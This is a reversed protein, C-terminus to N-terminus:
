SLDAGLHRMIKEFGPCSDAICNINHVTTDGAAVLGAVILAMALRHDGHSDVSAGRLPTPGCVVFGDSRPSIDAGLRRLEQVTTSIRDTEKVRLEAAGRVITEGVAQTAAVALIPFEDITRVVLDGCVETGVLGSSRVTVDAVPEGSVTREDSLGLDAGMAQLVDLLGTRTPNVGVGEITVDSNPILTAAGLLYAASSLDGPVLVDVARLTNGPALQLDGNSATRLDAGLALLMRETHDRSPGPSRLTTAGDAYLAALLLASKV